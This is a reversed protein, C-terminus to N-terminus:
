EYTMTYASDPFALATLTQPYEAEGDSEDDSEFEWPPSRTATVIPTNEVENAIKDM